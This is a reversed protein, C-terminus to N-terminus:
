KIKIKKIPKLDFECDKGISLLGSQRFIRYSKKSIEIRYVLDFIYRGDIIDRFIYIDYWSYVNGKCFRFYFGGQEIILNKYAKEFTMKM